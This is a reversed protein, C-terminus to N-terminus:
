WWAEFQAGVTLATRKGTQSVYPNTRWEWSENATPIDNYVTTKTDLEGYTAFFRIVPRDWFDGGLHLNQAITAKWSTNTGPDSGENVDDFKMMDYGLELQTSWRDSWNYSNRLVFSNWLTKEWAVSNIRRQRAEENFSQYEGTWAYEIRFTDTLNQMGQFVWGVSDTPLYLWDQTMSTSTNRGYRLIFQNFDAWQGQRIAFGLTYSNPQHFSASKEVDGWSWEYELDSDSGYYFGYNAFVDMAINDALSIGHLRTSIAHYNGRFGPEGECEWTQENTNTCFDQGTVSGNGEKTYGVNLKAFGLDLDDIGAGVGDNMVMHYDILESKYRQYYRQGAWIAAEPNSPIVGRGVVWWEDLNFDEADSAINTKIIWNMGNKSVGYDLHLEAFTGENGLRGTMASNNGATQIINMGNNANDSQRNLIQDNTSGTGGKGYGWFRFGDLNEGFASNCALALASLAIVRKM